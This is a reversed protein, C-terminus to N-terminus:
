SLLWYIMTTLVGILTARSYVGCTPLIAECSNMSDFNIGVELVNCIYSKVWSGCYKAYYNSTCDVFPAFPTCYDGDTVAAIANELDSTCKKREDLHGVHLNDFCGLNDDMLQKNTCMYARVPFDTAYEYSDVTSMGYMEKFSAGTMCPSNFLSGLCNEVNTELSCFTDVGDKGSNSTLNVIIGVYTTYPPLHEPDLSYGTFYSDLCAKTQSLYSPSCNSDFKTRTVYSCHVVAVAA